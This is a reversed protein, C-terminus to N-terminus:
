IFIIKNTLEPFQIIFPNIKILIRLYFQYYQFNGNLQEQFSLM